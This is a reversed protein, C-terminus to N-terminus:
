AGKQLVIHQRPSNFVLGSSQIFATPHEVPAPDDV